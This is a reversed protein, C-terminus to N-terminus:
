PCPDRAISIGWRCLGVTFPLPPGAYLFALIKGLGEGACVSYATLLRMSDLMVSDSMCAVSDSKDDGGDQADELPEQLASAAQETQSPDDSLIQLAEELGDAVAPHRAQVAAFYDWSWDSLVRVARAEEPGAFVLEGTAGSAYEGAGAVAIRLGRADGSLEVRALQSARSDALVYVQVPGEERYSWTAADDSRSGFTTEDGVGPADGVPETGACGLGHIALVLGICPPIRPMALTEHLPCVVGEGRRHARMASRM